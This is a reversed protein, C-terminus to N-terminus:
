WVGSRRWTDKMGRAAAAGAEACRALLHSFSFMQESASSAARTAHLLYRMLFAPLSAYWMRMRTCGKETSRMLLISVHAPASRRCVPMRPAYPLAYPVAARTPM